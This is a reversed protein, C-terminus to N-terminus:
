SIFANFRQGSSKVRSKLGGVDYGIAPSKHFSFSIENASFGVSRALSFCVTRQREGTLASIGTILDNRFWRNGPFLQFGLMSSTTYTKAPPPVTLLLLM